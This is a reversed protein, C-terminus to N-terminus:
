RAERSVATQGTASFYRDLVMLSIMDERKKDLFQAVYEHAHAIIAEAEEPYDIYYQLREPLDSLDPKIEIYHYGPCLTGEMFWTEYTPRPMVAVSNSSMIWKLNSAVDNGELALIFKHRLQQGITLKPCLWEQRGSAHRSIDGADVMPHGYYMEMFRMRLNKGGIKGRFLAIDSKDRFPVRDDVFIFHRVRNLNLLVSNANDGAIPRSKVLSPREPVYTIDGPLLHLRLDGDCMRAYRLTDFSYVKKKKEVKMDAIRQAGEGLATGPQLKCYYDRRALMAEYDSRGAAEAMLREHRRRLLPAPVSSRAYSAAYYKWKSNKGSFLM